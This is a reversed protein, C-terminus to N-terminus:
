TLSKFHENYGYGFVTFLENGRRIDIELSKLLFLLSHKGGMNALELNHIINSHFEIIEDINEIHRQLYKYLELILTDRLIHNVSMLIEEHAHLMEHLITNDDNTVDAKIVILKDAACNYGDCGDPMDTSIEIRYHHAQLSLSEIDNYTVDCFNDYPSETYKGMISKKDLMMDDFFDELMIMKLHINFVEETQENFWINYKAKQIDSSLAVNKYIYMLDNENNVNDLLKLIEKKYDM